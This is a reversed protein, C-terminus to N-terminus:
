LCLYGNCYWLVDSVPFTGLQEVMEQYEELQEEDIVDDDEEDIEVAEPQKSVQKESGNLDKADKAQDANSSTPMQESAPGGDSMVSTM